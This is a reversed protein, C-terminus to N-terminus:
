KSIVILRQFDEHSKHGHLTVVASCFFLLLSSENCEQSMRTNNHVKEVYASFKLKENENTRSMGFKINPYKTLFKLIECAM